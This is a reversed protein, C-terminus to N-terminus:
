TENFNIIGSQKNIRYQQAGSCAARVGLKLYASIFRLRGILSLIVFMEFCRRKLRQRLAKTRCEDTVNNSGVYDRGTDCFAFCYYMGVWRPRFKFSIGALIISFHWSLSGLGFLRYAVLRYLMDSSAAVQGERFSTHTSIM